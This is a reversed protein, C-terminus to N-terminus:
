NTGLGNWTLGNWFVNQMHKPAFDVNKDSGSMFNSLGM